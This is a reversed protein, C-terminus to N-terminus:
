AEQSRKQLLDFVSTSVFRLQTPLAHGSLPESKFQVESVPIEGLHQGAVKLDTWPVKSKDTTKAPVRYVQFTPSYDDLTENFLSEFLYLSDRYRVLFERPVDWYSGYDIVLWENM